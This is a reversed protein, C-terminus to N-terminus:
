STKIDSSKWYKERFWAAQLVQLPLHFGPTGKQLALCCSRINAQSMEAVPIMAESESCCPCFLLRRELLIMSGEM